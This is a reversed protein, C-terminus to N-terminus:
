NNNTVKNPQKIPHKTPNSHKSLNATQSAKADDIAAFEQQRSKELNADDEKFLPNGPPNAHHNSEDTRKDSQKPSNPM